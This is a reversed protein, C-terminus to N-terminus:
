KDSRSKKSLVVVAGLSIFAIGALLYISTEDGTQPPKEMKSTTTKPFCDVKDIWKGNDALPVSVIYNGFKEYEAATGARGTQVVIYMGPEIKDFNVTGTKDTVATKVPKVKSLNLKKAIDVSDKTNMETLDTSLEKFDESLSYTANGNHVTLDSFKYISISAGDIAEPGYMYTINLSKDKDSIDDVYVGEALAFSFTMIFAFLLISLKKIM